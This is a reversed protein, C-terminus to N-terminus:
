FTLNLGFSYNPLVPINASPTEPDLNHWAKPAWVAVNNAQFRVTLGKLYIRNVIHSPVAYSLSILRLRLFDTKAVRIDTQDYYTQFSYGESIREDYLAPIKTKVEDGPQKWRRAVETTVNEVPDFVARMEGYLAPLRSKGGLGFSLGVSLSIGKYTLYTDFGGTVNPNFNGSKVLAATTYDIDYVENGEKDRFLPYGNKESLRVFDLSYFTGVATGETTINGKIMDKALEDSTSEPLQSKIIKNENYAANVRVNWKWAKNRIIDCSVMGEIGKNDMTGSNIKVYNRGTAMSVEKNMILDKSRKNYYEVMGSFRDLFEFELGVNVSKTKEWRLDPNPLQQLTSYKLQSVEHRGELRVILDPSSDDNINGQIGYSAKLALHTLWDTDKLFNERNINWKGSVSWVPLFRYKPNTGFKNSGDSRINANLIYRNEYSYDVSGIFSVIRTERDTINTYANSQIFDRIRENDLNPWTVREGGENDYGYAKASHGKYNKISIEQIFLGRLSHKDNFVNSYELGNQFLMTHNNTHGYSLEGGYPLKSKNEDDSFPPYFGLDSGRIHAIYYSRETAHNETRANSTAYSFLGRYKLGKYLDVDLNLQLSFEETHGKSGTEELENLVNFSEPRDTTGGKNYFFLDGEEDYLPIVRSTHYAYDQPNVQYFGKNDSISGSIKFATRLWPTIDNLIKLMATYRESDSGIAAGRSNNYGLSIYYSNHDGGGSVSLSYDQYLSNRFLIDFWDTNRKELVRAQKEFEQPTIKKDYLDMVIGEYGLRKPMRKYRLGQEIIEQSLKVREQSNMLNLRRYSPRQNVSFNSNFTVMPKGKKGRKTTIVIVGNAAKVGYIATASADKLVNITEIDQPNLGAIGNGILYEADPGNIDSANFPLPNEQPVGDIVWIPAKNGAITSTGRIRIKPTASPEGSTLTVSMGPVKGQLMQDITMAGAVVVDEAKLTVISSALERKSFRQYGTTVVVEDMMQVDEEMIISYEKKGKELKVYRTKMGIFSVILTDVKGKFELSFVGEANTSTGWTTGKLLVTVGPIPTGKTDVVKGKIVEKEEDTMWGAEGKRKLVIVNNIIKYELSFTPLVKELVSAISEDKVDISLTGSNQVVGSNYLFRVGAQKKVANIFEELTANELKLSVKDQAQVDAFINLSFLFLFVVNLKMMLLTKKKCKILCRLRPLLKKKM